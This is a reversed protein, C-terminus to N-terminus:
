CVGDVHVTFLGGEETTVRFVGVDGEDVKSAWVGDGDGLEELCGREHNEEGGEAEEREVGRCEVDDEGVESVAACVLAAHADGALPEADDDEADAAHGAHYQEVGDGVCGLFVAEDFEVTGDGGHEGCGVDEGGDEGDHDGAGTELGDDRGEGNEGLVEEGTACVDDDGEEDEVGCGIGEGGAGDDTHHLDGAEELSEGDCDTSCAIVEAVVEAHLCCVERQPSAECEEADDARTERPEDALSRTHLLIEGALNEAPLRAEISISLLLKTQLIDLLNSQYM